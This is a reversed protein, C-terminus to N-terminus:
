LGTTPVAPSNADPPRRHPLRRPRARPSEMHDKHGPGPEHQLGGAAGGPGPDDGSRQGQARDDRGDKTPGEHVPQAELAGAHVQGADELEPLQDACRAQASTHPRATSHPTTFRGRMSPLSPDGTRYRRSDMLLPQQGNAAWPLMRASWRPRRPLIQGPRPERSGRILAPEREAKGKCLSFRQREPPRTDGLVM